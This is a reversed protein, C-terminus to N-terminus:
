FCAQGATEGSYKSVGVIEFEVDGTFMAMVKDVDHQNLVEQFSEVLNILNFQDSM